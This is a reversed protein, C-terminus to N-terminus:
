GGGGTVLCPGHPGSAIEYGNAYRFTLTAGDQKVSVVNGGSDQFTLPKDGASEHLTGDFDPNFAAAM